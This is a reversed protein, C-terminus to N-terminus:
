AFYDIAGSLHLPILEASTAAALEPEAASVFAPSDFSRDPERRSAWGTDALISFRDFDFGQDALRRQLDAMNDQMVQRVVESEVKFEIHMRSESALVRISIRGLFEPKLSVYIESAEGRHALRVGQVIQDFLREYGVQAGRVVAPQASEQPSVQLASGDLPSKASAANVLDLIHSASWGRRAESFLQSDPTSTVAARSVVALGPAAETDPQTEALANAFMQQLRGFEVEGEEQGASVVESFLLAHEKLNVPQAVEQMLSEPSSEMLMAEGSDATALAFSQLQTEDLLSVEFLGTESEGVMLLGGLAESPAVGRSAIAETKVTGNGSNGASGPKSATATPDPADADSAGGGSNAPSRADQVPEQQVGMNSPSQSPERMAMGLTAPEDSDVSKKVDESEPPSEAQGKLKLAVSKLTDAFTREEAPSSKASVLGLLTGGNTKDVGLERASRVGIAKM